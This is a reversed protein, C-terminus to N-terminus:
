TYVMLQPRSITWTNQIPDVVPVADFFRIWVNSSPISTGLDVDTFGTTVLTTKYVWNSGDWYWVKMFEEIHAVYFRVYYHKGNTPM